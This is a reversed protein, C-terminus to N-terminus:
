KRYVGFRTFLVFAIFTIQNSDLKQCGSTLFIETINSDSVESDGFEDYFDNMVNMENMEYMDTEDFITMNINESVQIDNLINLKETALIKTAIAKEERSSVSPEQNSEQEPEPIDNSKLEPDDSTMEYQDLYQILTQIDDDTYESSTIPRLGYNSDHNLKAKAPIKLDQQDNPSFEEQHDSQIQDEVLQEQDNPRGAQHYTSEYYNGENKSMKPHQNNSHNSDQNVFMKADQDLSHSQYVDEMGSGYM